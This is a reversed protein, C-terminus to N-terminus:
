ARRVWRLDTCRSLVFCLSCLARSSATKNISQSEQWAGAAGRLASAREQESAGAQCTRAEAAPAEHSRWILRHLQHQRQQNLNIEQTDPATHTPSPAVGIPTLAMHTRTHLPLPYLQAARQANSGSGRWVCGSPSPTAGLRNYYSPPVYTNLVNNHPVGGGGGGLRRKASAQCGYAGQRRPTSPPQGWEPGLVRLLYRLM